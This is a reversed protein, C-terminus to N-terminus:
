RRIYARQPDYRRDAASPQLDPLITVCRVCGCDVSGLTNNPLDADVLTDWVLPAMSGTCAFTRTLLPRSIRVHNHM